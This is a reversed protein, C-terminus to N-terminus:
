VLTMISCDSRRLFRLPYNILDAADWGSSGQWYGSHLLFPETAQLWPLSLYFGNQFPSRDKAAPFQHKVNIGHLLGEDIDDTIGNLRSVSDLVSLGSMLIWVLATLPITIFPNLYGVEIQTDIVSLPGPIGSLM